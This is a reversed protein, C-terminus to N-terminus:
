KILHNGVASYKIQFGKASNKWNSTFHVKLGNGKSLITDNLPNVINCYEGIIEETGDLLDYIRVADYKFCKYGDYGLIDFDLTTLRIHTGARVRLKWTCDDNNGYNNPYNPSWIINTGREITNPCSSTINVTASFIFTM